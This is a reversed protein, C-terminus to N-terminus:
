RAALASRDAVVEIPLLMSDQAGTTKDHLTVKLQYGGVTLTAPLAVEAVVYFDRRQRRSVDVVTEAPRRWALVGDAEHYLNLEVGLSVAWLEDGAQVRLGATGREAETASRHAFGDAEAYVIVRRAGGALFRESEFAEYLGFGLVRRCLAADAVRLQGVARLGREAEGLAEIAADTGADGAAFTSMIERAAALLAEEQPALVAGGRAGGGVSSEGAGLWLSELAALRLMPGFPEASRGVEARVREILGTWALSVDESSAVGASADAEPVPESTAASDAAAGDARAAKAAPVLGALEEDTVYSIFREDVGGADAEHALDEVGEVMSSAPAARDARPRVVGVDTSWSADREVSDARPPEDFLAQLAQASALAQAEIDTIDVPETTSPEGAGGYWVDISTVAELPKVPELPEDRQSLEALSADPATTRAAAARERQQESSATRPGSAEFMRGCGGMWVASIGM